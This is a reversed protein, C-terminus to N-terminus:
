DPKLKHFLALSASVPNNQLAAHLTLQQVPKTRTEKLFCGGRWGALQCGAGRHFLRSKPSDHPNQSPTSVASPCLYVCIPFHFRVSRFALLPCVPASGPTQSRAPQSAPSSQFGLRRESFMPITFGPNGSASERWGVPKPAEVVEHNDFPRARRSLIFSAPYPHIM